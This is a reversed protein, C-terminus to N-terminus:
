EEIHHDSMLKQVTESMQQLKHLALLDHNGIFGSRTQQNVAAATVNILANLECVAKQVDDPLESYTTTFDM